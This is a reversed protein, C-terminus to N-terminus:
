NNALEWPAFTLQAVQQPTMSTASAVATMPDVALDLWQAGFTTPASFLRVDRLVWPEVTLQHLLRWTEPSVTEVIPAPAATAAEPAPAVRWAFVSAVTAAGLVGLVGLAVTLRALGRALTHKM